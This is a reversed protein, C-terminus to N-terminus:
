KNSQVNASTVNKKKLSSKVSSVAKVTPVPSENGKLRDELIAIKKILEEKEKQVRHREEREDTYMKYIISEDSCRYISAAERLDEKNINYQHYQKEKIDRLMSGEGTLIWRSSYQPYNEVVLKIWKSQIDTGNSIARSLVGKSAGILRELATITIGEKQAIEQIRSLISNMLHFNDDKNKCLQYNDGINAIDEM